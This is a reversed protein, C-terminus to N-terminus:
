GVPLCFALGDVLPDPGAFDVIRHDIEVFRYAVRAIRGLDARGVVAAIIQMRVVGSVLRHRHWRGTMTLSCFNLAMRDVGFAWRRRGALRRPVRGMGANVTRWNSLRSGPPDRSVAVQKMREERITADLESSEVLLGVAAPVTTILLYAEKQADLIPAEVLHWMGTALLITLGFRAVFPPAEGLVFFDASLSRFRGRSSTSSIRGYSIKGLFRFPAFNFFGLVWRNDTQWLGLATALFGVWTANAHSAPAHRPRDVTIGSLVARVADGGARPRVSVDMSSRRRTDKRVVGVYGCVGPAVEGAVLYEGSWHSGGM